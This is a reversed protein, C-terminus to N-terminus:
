IATLFKGASFSCSSTLETSIRNDQQRDNAAAAGFFPPRFWGIMTASLKNM